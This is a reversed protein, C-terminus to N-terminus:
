DTRVRKPTGYRCCINYYFAEACTPASKDPIPLIEVWKSFADVCVMLYKDGKPSTPIPGM